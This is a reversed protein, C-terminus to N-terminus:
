FRATENGELRPLTKVAATKKIPGRRPDIVRQDEPINRFNPSSGSTHQQQALQQQSRKLMNDLAFNATNIEVMYQKREDNAKHYAKSEQDLRWELDRIQNQLSNQHKRLNQVTFQTPEAIFDESSLDHQHPSRKLETLSQKTSEMKQQILLIQRQLQLNIEEQTEYRTKWENGESDISDIRKELQDVTQKMESTSKELMEKMQKEQLIESKIKELEYDESYSNDDAAMKSVLHWTHKGTRM